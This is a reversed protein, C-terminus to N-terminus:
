TNVIIGIIIGFPMLQDKYRLIKGSLLVSNVHIIVTFNMTYLFLLLQSYKRPSIPLALIKM